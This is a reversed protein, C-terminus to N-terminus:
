HLRDAQSVQPADIDDISLADDMTETYEHLRAARMHCHVM